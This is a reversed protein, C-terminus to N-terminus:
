QCDQKQKLRPDKIKGGILVCPHIILEPTALCLIDSLFTKPYSM